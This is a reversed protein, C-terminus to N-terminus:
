QPQKGRKTGIAPKFSHHIGRSTGIAALQARVQAVVTDPRSLVDSATSRLLRVEAELLRNQRRNDETVTDRHGSGDFEIGLRRQEYYLDLRGAFRGSRDHIPVQAQPRPLGNQILLMRLRSEM